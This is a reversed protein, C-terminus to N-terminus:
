EEQKLYVIDTPIGRYESGITTKKGFIIYIRILPEEGKFGLATADIEPHFLEESRLHDLAAFAKNVAAMFDRAKQSIPHPPLCQCHYCETTIHCDECPGYSSPLIHVGVASQHVTRIHCEECIFSM